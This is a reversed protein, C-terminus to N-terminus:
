NFKAITIEIQKREQESLRRVFAVLAAMEEGSANYLRESPEL